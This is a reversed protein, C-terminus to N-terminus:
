GRRDTEPPRQTVDFALSGFEQRDTRVIEPGQDLHAEDLHLILLGHKGVQTM